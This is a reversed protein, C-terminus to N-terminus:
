PWTTGDNGQGLDVVIQPAVSAQDPAALLDGAPTPLNGLVFRGVDGTTPTGTSVSKGDVTTSM